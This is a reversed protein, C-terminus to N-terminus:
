DKQPEWYIYTLWFVLNFTLFMIPFLVRSIRDVNRAKERDANLVSRIDLNKIRNLLKSKEKSTNQQGAEGKEQDGNTFSIKKMASIFTPKEKEINVETEHEVNEEDDTVSNMKKMAKLFNPKENPMDEQVTEGDNEQDANVTKMKKMASLFNPKVNPTVKSDESEKNESGGPSAHVANKAAVGAMMTGVAISGITSKKRRKEVRSLVNVYAFEVLGLFVFGLCVAMWVDIAKLYSVKPLNNRAGASQTTMTLVTLLGLSIRAPVADIDLWFSVWSLFVILYSPIFVQTVYYGVSRQMYIDFRVCSYGVGYYLKDCQSTTLDNLYFQPIKIDGQSSISKKDWKFRLTETTYGYSEMEVFCHQSDMPFKRLDFNCKITASIRLSYQIKGDPYVHMLKNPVTVHHVSARKETPMFLDPIWVKSISTTDLELKQMGKIPTFNLRSDVWSQRLFMSLSFDMNSESITDISTLFIQITVETAGEEPSTPALRNDYGLFLGEILTKRYGQDQTGNQQCHVNASIVTMLVILNSINFDMKYEQRM